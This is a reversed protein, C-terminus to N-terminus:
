PEVVKEGRPRGDEDEQFQVPMRSTPAEMPREGAVANGAVDIVPAQPVNTSAKGVEMPPPRKFPLYLSCILDDTGAKSERADPGSDDLLNAGLSKVVVFDGPLFSIQWEQGYADKLAHLIDLARQDQNLEDRSKSASSNNVAEIEKENKAQLLEIQERLKNRILIKKEAESLEKGGLDRQIQVASVKKLASSMKTGCWGNVIALEEASPPMFWGRVIIFGFLGALALVVASLVLYVKRAERAGRDTTKISAGSAQTKAFEERQKEREVVKDLGAIDASLNTRLGMDRKSGRKSMRGARQSPTAIPSSPAPLKASPKAATPKTAAPAPASPKGGPANRKGSAAADSPKMKKVSDASAKAKGSASPGGAAPKAAPKKGPNPKTSM